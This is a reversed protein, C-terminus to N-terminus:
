YGNKTPGNSIPDWASLIGDRLNRLREERAKMKEDYEAWLSKMQAKLQQIEGDEAQAKQEYAEWASATHARLRKLEEKHARVVEEYSVWPKYEFRHMTGVDDHTFVCVVDNVEASFTPNSFTRLHLGTEVHMFGVTEPEDEPFVPEFLTSTPGERNSDAPPPPVAKGEVPEEGTASVWMVSHKKVLKLYKNNYACRLHVHREPDNASPIVDIKAFPSVPDIDRKCGMARYQAGFEEENWLYHMYKNVSRSRLTVHRPLRKIETTTSM